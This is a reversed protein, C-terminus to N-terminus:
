PNISMLRVGFVSRIPEVVRHDFKQNTGDYDRNVPCDCITFRNLFPKMSKLLRIIAAEPWQNPHELPVKSSGKEQNHQKPAIERFDQVDCKLWYRVIGITETSRLLQKCQVLALWRPPPSHICRPTTRHKCAIKPQEQDYEMERCEDSASCALLFFAAECSICFEFVM